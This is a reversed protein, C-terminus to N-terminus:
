GPAQAIANLEAAHPCAERFFCRRCARAADCFPFDAERAQNAAPNVLLARMAGAGAVIRDRAAALLAPTIAYESVRAGDKLFVGGVKIADRRACWKDAAYFAYCALQLQLAEEREAGTKWDLIHLIGDDGTYAFDVACWVKIADVLFTDLKDVPKWNLYNVALLERLVASDAFAALCDNVKDRIRETQAPPLTRGNGYYLEDLNTKKPAREWDRNVAETWGARLKVRARAQLEAVTVPAPKLAYRRLTEAIVEHVISGAWMDLSRLNKLRYLLRTRAPAGAEWGSWAGYYNYYYARRCEDFLGQRSVSWSFENVLDAMASVIFGWTSVRRDATKVPHM